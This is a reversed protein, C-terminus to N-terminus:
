IEGFFQELKKLAMRLCLVWIKMLLVGEHVRSKSIM